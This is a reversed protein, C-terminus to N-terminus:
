WCNQRIVCYRVITRKLLVECVSTDVSRLILGGMERAFYAIYIRSGIVRDFNTKYNKRYKSYNSLYYVSGLKNECFCGMFRRLPRAIPHRNHSNLLFDVAHYGCGKRGFNIFIYIYISSSWTHYIKRKCHGYHMCHHTVNSRAIVLDSQLFVSIIYMRCLNWKYHILEYCLQQFGDKTVDCSLNTELNVFEVDVFCLCGIHYTTISVVYCKAVM